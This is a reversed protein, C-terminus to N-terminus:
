WRVTVSIEENIFGFGDMDFSINTFGYCYFLTTM